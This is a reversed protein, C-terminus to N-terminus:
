LLGAHKMAELVKKDKGSLDKLFKDIKKRHQIEEQLREDATEMQKLVPYLTKRRDWVLVAIFVGILGLMAYVLGWIADRMQRIENGLDERISRNGDDVKKEVADMRKEINDLRVEIRVMRERDAITYPVEIDKKQSFVNGSLLFLFLIVILKFM